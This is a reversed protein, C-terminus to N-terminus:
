IFFGKNVYGQEIAEQYSPSPAEPVPVPTATSRMFPDPSAGEVDSGDPAIYSPLHLASGISPLPTRGCRCRSHDLTQLELSSSITSISARTGEGNVDSDDDGRHRATSRHTPRSKRRQRRRHDHPLIDPSDCQNRRPDDSEQNQTPNDSDPDENSKQVKRKRSLKREQSGNKRM